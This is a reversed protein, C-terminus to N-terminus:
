AAGKETELQSLNIIATDEHSSVWNAYTVDPSTSFPSLIWIVLDLVKAESHYLEVSHTDFHIVARTRDQSVICRVM